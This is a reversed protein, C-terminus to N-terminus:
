PQEDQKDKPKLYKGAKLLRAIIHTQIDPDLELIINIIEDPELKRIEKRVNRSLPNIIRKLWSM